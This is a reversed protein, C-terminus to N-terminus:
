SVPELGGAQELAYLAKCFEAPPIDTMSGLAKYITERSVLSVVGIGAKDLTQAVKHADSGPTLGSRSIARRFEVVTKRRRRRTKKPLEFGFAKAYKNYVSKKVHPRRVVEVGLEHLAMAQSETVPILESM